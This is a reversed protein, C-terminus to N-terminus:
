LVWEKVEKVILENIDYLIRDEEDFITYHGKMNKRNYFYKAQGICANYYKHRFVEKENELLVYKEKM